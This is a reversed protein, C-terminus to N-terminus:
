STESHNSMGLFEEAYDPAPYHFRAPGDPQGELFQLVVPDQTARIASPAGEALVKGNAIVYAYDAISLVENVDHSVVVSTLGLADNINKIVRMLTGMSIPDQGTFPEDYLVMEPDLAIARALAVRRAMGGSLESPMLDRAGRLGVAHLKMLVLDRIMSEPLKTHERLPFAVNDFVNIDTLLAGNQFLMGIRKRLAFLKRSSLKKVEVDDVWLQGSDPKLQGTILKLLTTKGTGSPGMIATIKGRPIRVDIGDFIVRSGRKFSLDQTTVLYEPAASM